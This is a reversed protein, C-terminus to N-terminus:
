EIPEAVIQRVALGFRWVRAAFRDFQSGGGECPQHAEYSAFM